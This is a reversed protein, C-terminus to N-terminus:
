PIAHGIKGVNYETFWLSGDPGVTIEQPGAGSTPLPFETVAHTTLSIEGLANKGADLFWMAGDVGAAIGEPVSGAPLAIQTLADTSPDIVLVLPATGGSATVWVNGDTGYAIYNANDGDPVSIQTTLTNNTLSFDGVYGTEAFWADGLTGGPVWTVESPTGSPSFPLITFQGGTDLTWVGGSTNDAVLMLGNPGPAIGQPTGTFPYRAIIGTTTVRDVGGNAQDTVWLAGDSGATIDFLDGSSVQYTYALSANSPNIAYVNSPQDTFWINGDPGKAISFPHSYGTYETITTGNISVSAGVPTNTVPLALAVNGSDTITLTCGSASSISGGSVPLTASAGSGSISGITAINTCGALSATYTRTSGAEGFGLQLPGVGTGNLSVSTVTNGNVDAILPALTSSQSSVGSASLTITFSYGPAGGGDYDVTVSDTSKTVLVSSSPSGGDLSVSAHGSGGSESIAVTIPNAYPDNQGATIPNDGFDTPAIVLGVSQPEGDAPLSGSPLRAGFNAIEGGVFVPVSTTSGAIVDVNATGVGLIAAGSPIANNAPAENYVTVTFVDNGTPVTVTTTCTRSSGSGSCASSSASLDLTADVTTAGQTVVIGAGLASASIYAPHRAIDTGSNAPVILSIAVIQMKSNSPSAPASPTVSGGGGGGCAALLLVLLPAFRRASM